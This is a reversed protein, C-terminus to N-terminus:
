ADIVQGLGLRIRDCRTGRAGCVLRLVIKPHEKIWRPVGEAQEEM